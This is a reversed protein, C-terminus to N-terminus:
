VAHVFIAAMRLLLRSDSIGNEAGQVMNSPDGQHYMIGINGSDVILEPESDKLSKMFRDKVEEMYGQIEDNKSMASSFVGVVRNEEITMAMSVQGYYASELSANLKTGQTEDEKLTVHLSVTRGDVEVPIDFSGKDAMKAAVSIQKQMLHIAKIDIYSDPGAEDTLMADLKYSLESLGENYSEKYDEAEALDDLMKKETEKFALHAIREVQDRVGNRGRRGNRLGMIARLNEANIEIGSETLENRAQEADNRRVTERVERAQESYYAKELLMENENAVEEQLKDALEDLLMDADPQAKQLKEPELNDYVTEAKKSYYLFATNIQSDISKTLSEVQEVGVLNDDIKYDMGTKKTKLTRSASLLNGITMEAGTELVAGIAANDTKKLQHFLRYIGIYSEKEEPTIEANKELKYLFKAYKEERKSSDKNEQSLNDSLEDLTMNLPNKDKRILSLVSEPKLKELVDMLKEDVTRIKEINDKTVEMRNYGLIRVVRKNEENIAEGLDKLIDTVNRFAKKINDGLDARPATGVAEYTSGAKEYKLKLSYGSEIIEGLSEKGEESLKGIVGIPYSRFSSIKLNTEEYLLYKASAEELGKENDATNPFYIKGLNKLENDFENILNKIPETDISIGKNLLRINASVTMKLRVEELQMRAEILNIEKNDGIDTKTSSNTNDIEINKETKLFAKIENANTEKKEHAEYLNKINFTNGEKVVKEVDADTIEKISEAIDAAKKYINEKTDDETLVVPKKNAIEKVAADIVKEETLPLELQTLKDIKKINETTLPISQNVMWKARDMIEKTPELGSEEIVKRAQDKISEFDMADAKQAYYGGTELPIFGRNRQSQGNTAHQALYINDITPELDNLTMYKLAGESLETVEGSQDLSRLIDEANSKTVPLDNEHLSATIKDALGRSGTMKELQKPSLDDTYGIIETGSQALVAKIKDIITVTEEPDTESLDFGEEAGKAFDEPSLTNAMLSMYNHRVSADTNQAQSVIDNKNKKGEAYVDDSFLSSGLDVAVASQAKVSKSSGTKIGYGAETSFKSKELDSEMGSIMGINVSM